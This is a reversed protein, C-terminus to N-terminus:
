IAWIPDSPSWRPHNYQDSQSRMAWTKAIITINAWLEPCLTEIVNRWSSCVQGLHWPGGRIAFVNFGYLRRGLTMPLGSGNYKWARRLIEMTIESSIRRIPSLVTEYDHKFSLLRSMRSEVSAVVSRLQDLDSQLESLPTKLSELSANLRASQLLSPADNTRLLSAVDPPHTFTPIWDHRALIEGLAVPNSIM